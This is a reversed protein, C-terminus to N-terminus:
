GQRLYRSRAGFDEYPSIFMANSLIKCMKSGALYRGLRPLGVRLRLIWRQDSSIVSFNTMIAFSEIYFVFADDVASSGGTWEYLCYQGTIFYWDCSGLDGLSNFFSGTNISTYNRRGIQLIQGAFSVSITLSCLCGVIICLIYKLKITLSWLNCSFIKTKFAKM